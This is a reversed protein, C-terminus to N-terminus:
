AQTGIARVPRGSVGISPQQNSRSRFRRLHANLRAAKLRRETLERELRELIPWYADGYLEIVRAVTAM